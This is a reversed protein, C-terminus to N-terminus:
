DDAVICEVGWLKCSEMDMIVLVKFSLVKYPEMYVLEDDDKM